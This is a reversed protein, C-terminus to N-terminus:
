KKATKKAGPGKRAPAPKKGEAPKKRAAPRKGPAPEGEAEAKGAAETKKAAKDQQAGPALISQCAPSGYFQALEDRVAQELFGSKMMLKLVPTAATVIELTVQERTLGLDDLIDSLARDGYKEFLADVIEQTVGLFYPTKRFSLWFEYGLVILDEMDDADLNSFHSALPVSSSSRFQADAIEAIRNEDLFDMLFRESHRVAIEVYRSLWDRIQDEVIASLGPAARNVTSKGLKLLPSLGPVGRSLLNESLLFDKVVGLLLDSVLGQYAPNRVTRNILSERANKLNAAKDVMEDFIRRPFIDALTVTENGEYDLVRRTMEGAIEPIGGGFNRDVVNRMIIDMVREQTIVQELTVTAMWEFAIETKEKILRPFRKGRTLDLVYAVQADLLKQATENM